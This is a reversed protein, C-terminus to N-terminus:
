IKCKSEKGPRMPYEWYINTLPISPCIVWTMVWGVEVLIDKQGWQSDWGILTPPNNNQVRKKPCKRMVEVLCPPHPQYTSATLSLSLQSPILNRLGPAQIQYYTYLPAQHAVTRPTAFLRVRSLSKVKVKWKMCQLLFHCGVGTNKGPSDWPRSLRTPQRRHPRVSDSM